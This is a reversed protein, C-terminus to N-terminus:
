VPFIKNEQKLARTFVNQTHGVIEVEAVVNAVLALETVLKQLKLESRIALKPLYDQRREIPVYITCTHWCCCSCSRCLSGCPLRSEGPSSWVQAADLLGFRILSNHVLQPPDNFIRLDHCLVVLEPWLRVSDAPLLELDDDPVLVDAEGGALDAPLVFTVSCIKQETVSIGLRQDIIM